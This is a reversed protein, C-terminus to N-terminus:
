RCNINLTKGTLSVSAINNLKYTRFKGSRLKLVKTIQQKAITKDASKVVKYVGEKVVNYKKNAFGFIQVEGTEKLIRISNNVHFYADTQAQSNVTRDEKNESINKDSSVIMESLAVKFIDLAIDKKSKGAVVEIDSNHLTKNDTKKANMVNINVLINHDAIEGTTESEYGNLNIFKAGNLNEISDFIKKFKEM